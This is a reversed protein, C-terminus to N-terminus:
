FNEKDVPGHFLYDGNLRVNVFVNYRAAFWTNDITYITSVQCGAHDALGASGLNIETYGNKILDMNLLPNSYYNTNEGNVHIKLEKMTAKINSYVLCVDNNNASHIIAITFSPNNAELFTSIQLLLSGDLVQWGLAFYPSVINISHKDLFSSNVQDIMKSPFIVYGIAGYTNNIQDRLWQPIYQNQLLTIYLNSLYAQVQQTTIQNSPIQISPNLELNYDLINNHTVNIIMSLTANGSKLTISLSSLAINYNIGNNYYNFSRPFNSSNYQADLFRNIATETVEMSAVITHNGALAIQTSIIILFILHYLLKYFKQM